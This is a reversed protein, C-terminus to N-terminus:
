APPWCIVDPSSNHACLLHRNYTLLFRYIILKTSHWVTDYFKAAETATIDRMLPPNDWINAAKASERVVTQFNLRNIVCGVCICAFM